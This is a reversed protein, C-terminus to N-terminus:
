KMCKLGWVAENRREPTIIHIQIAAHSVPNQMLGAIVFVGVFVLPHLDASIMPSHCSEPRGVTAYAFLSKSFDMSVLQKWVPPDLPLLSPAFGLCDAGSGDVCFPTDALARPWFLLVQIGFPALM